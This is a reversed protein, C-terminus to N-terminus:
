RADKVIRFGVDFGDAPGGAHFFYNAGTQDASFSAGKLVRITGSRPPTPDAFQKENYWDAVWEWVNGVMDHLGWANPKKQGVMQTTAKESLPAPPTPAAAGAGSTGRGRGGGRFQFYWAYEGIQSWPIEEDSGARAAYEWEFETPLRYATTKEIANLRAVFRQADQWTVSDVPHKGANDNVKAGQFISPNKGMVQTWQEQTVEYKGIYYAKDIRVMFGPQRSAAAMQECQAIEEATLPTGRGGGGRGVAGTAPAAGQPPGAPPPSPCRPTYRGVLFTGTQVLVLEMGITNTIAPAPTQALATVVGGVVLAVIGV